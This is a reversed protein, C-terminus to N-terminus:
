EVKLKKVKGGETVMTFQGGTRKALDGMADRAKPDMMAICNITIGKRKAKMGIDRATDKSNPGASGDTMFYIVQPPPEMSLAMELPNSWQTGWVLKTERVIKKSKAIAFANASIWEPVQM